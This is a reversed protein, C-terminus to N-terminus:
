EVARLVTNEAALRVAVGDEAPSVATLRLGFPLAPVPYRLDLFEGARDVVSGPVEVGAGEASDVEIVLEDDEVTVQGLATLPLEQGLVDVTGTIRLQEGERELTVDRGLETALLAYSLTVTGELREVPLAEVTGSLVDSLPAEVGRLTIDARTGEPQGLQDASLSVRVDDYRGALAQTLFPFGTIDVEPEGQLAGRKALERGVSEETIGVLVRDALVVLGLLVALVIGLVKM